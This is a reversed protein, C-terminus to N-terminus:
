DIDDMLDAQRRYRPLRRELTTQSQHNAHEVLTLATKLADSMAKAATTMADAPTIPRTAASRALRARLVCGCERLYTRLIDVAAPPIHERPYAHPLSHSSMAPLM